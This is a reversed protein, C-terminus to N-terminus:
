LDGERKVVRGIIKILEKFEEKSYTEAPIDAAQAKVIIGGKGLPVIFRLYQIGNIEILYIRNALLPEKEQTNIILNDNINLTPSMSDDEVTYTLLDAEKYGHKDLWTKEILMLEGKNSTRFQVHSNLLSGSTKSDKQSDVITIGDTPKGKNYIFWQPSVNALKAAKLGFEGSVQKVKGNAWGNLSQPKIGIERAFEAQTMGSKKLVWKYRDSFLNFDYGATDM